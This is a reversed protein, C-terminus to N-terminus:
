EREEPQHDVPFKKVACRAVTQWHKDLSYFLQKNCTSACGPRALVVIDLAMEECERRAVRWHRFSERVARKIRNRGVANKDVKRSVAM